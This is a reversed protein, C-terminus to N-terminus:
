AYYEVRRPVSSEYWPSENCVSFKERLELHPNYLECPTTSERWLMYDENHIGWQKWYQIRERSYNTNKIQLLRDTHKKLYTYKYAGISMSPWHKLAVKDAGDPINTILKSFNKGVRCTDHLMVWYDAHMSHEAIDILSTYEISNHDAQIYNVGDKVIVSRTTHGGEIFFIDSANIGCATLSPIIIPYTQHSFSLHSTICIKINM